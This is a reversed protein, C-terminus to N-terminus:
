GVQELRFYSRVVFNLNGSGEEGRRWGGIRPASKGLGSVCDQCGEVATGILRNSEFIRYVILYSGHVLQRVNRRRRVLGGRYPYNSLGDAEAALEDGLREAALPNDQAVYAVIENLDGRAKATLRVEYGM